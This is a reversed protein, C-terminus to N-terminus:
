KRVPRAQRLRGVLRQVAPRDAPDLWLEVRKLGEKTRREREEAKRQTNLKPM